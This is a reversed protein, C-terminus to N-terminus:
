SLFPYRPVRALTVMSPGVPRSEFDGEGGFNTPTPSRIFGPDMGQWSHEVERGWGVTDPSWTRLGNGSAQMALVSWHHQILQPSDSPRQRHADGCGLAYQSNPM